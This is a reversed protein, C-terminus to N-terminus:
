IDLNSKDDRIFIALPEINTNWINQHLKKIELKESFDFFLAIVRNEYVVFEDVKLDNLSKWVRKPLSLDKGTELTFVLNEPIKLKEALYKSNNKVM